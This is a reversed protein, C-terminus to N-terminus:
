EWSRYRLTWHNTPYERHLTLFLLHETDSSTKDSCANRVVRFAQGLLEPARPDHPNARQWAFAEAPLYNSAKPIARLAAIEKVAEARDAPTLFVPDPIEPHAFSTFGWGTDNYQEPMSNKATPPVTFCWWNDRYDSYSAFGDVRYNGERVDPETSAFRMLAFLAAAKRDKASIARNYAFLVPQWTANCRILIPSLRKAIDRRDLLVARTWGAQAVQFRLNPPLVSSEAAQALLRLPLRTNIVTAADPAFLPMDADRLMPGCPQPKPKPDFAEEESYTAQAAPKRVIQALWTNLEPASRANLEAFLNRTSVSEDDSLQPLAALLEDRMSSSAPSLRLRHYTIASYAADRPKIMAAATLLEATSVEGPKAFTLAALLWSNSHSNHWHELSVAEDSTHFAKIWALLDSGRREADDAPSPVPVKPRAALASDNMDPEGNLLYSLDLVDQFFNPDPTPATLRIALTRTQLVPELRANVRDLMADIAHVLPQMRHEGRMALLEARATRLEELYRDLRQDPSPEKSQDANPPPYYAELGVARTVLIRGVLYRSLPSWPSHSDAAIDSFSALADGYNSQYLLTAARQYARDYHLWQPSSAPLMAPTSKEKDCNHFVVDQGRVWELVDTSHSGYAAGRARLTRAANAFADDLCNEFYSDFQWANQTGFPSEPIFGDVAGVAKRASVWALFGEHQPLPSQQDSDWTSSFRNNVKVAASQEESSLPLRNLYRYLIVLHRTRYSPQPVGLRGRAFAEYPADPGHQKVFVAEPWEPGCTHASLEVLVFFVAWLFPHLRRVNM